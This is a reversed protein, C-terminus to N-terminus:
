HLVEFRNKLFYFEKLVQLTIRKNFSFLISLNIIGFQIINESVVGDMRAANLAIARFCVKFEKCMYHFKSSLLRQELAIADTALLISANRQNGQNADM